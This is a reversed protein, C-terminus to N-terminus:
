FHCRVAIVSELVTRGEAGICVDAWTWPAIWGSLPLSGGLILAVGAAVAQYPRLSCDSFFGLRLEGSHTGRQHWLSILQTHIAVVADLRVRCDSKERPNWRPLLGADALDGPELPVGVIAQLETLTLLGENLFSRARVLQEIEYGITTPGPHRIVDYAELAMLTNQDIKLFATIENRTTVLPIGDSDNAPQHLIDLAGIAEAVETSLGGTDMLVGVAATEAIRARPIVCLPHLARPGRRDLRVLEYTNNDRIAALARTALHRQAVSLRSMEFREWGGAAWRIDPLLMAKAVHFMEDWTAVITNSGHIRIRFPALAAFDASVNAEAPSALSGQDRSLEAGCAECELLAPRDWLIEHGCSLCEDQLVLHHHACVTVTALDWDDRMYRTEALCRACVPTRAKLLADLHVRVGELVIAEDGAIVEAQYQNMCDPSGAALRGINQLSELHGRLQILGLDGNGGLRLGGVRLLERVTAYGNAEAIRKLFGRFSEDPAPPFNRYCGELFDPVVSTGASNASPLTM